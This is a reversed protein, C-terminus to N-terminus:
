PPGPPPGSPPPPPPYVIVPPAYHHRYRYYTVPPPPIQNGRTSMCQEYAIDYRHQAQREQPGANSAGVASGLLLGWVAGGVIGGPRGGSLAAGAAAGVGAGIGAGKAVSEGPEPTGQLSREAYDRCTRDDAQFQELSKGPGPMVAVDPGKPMTSCGAVILATLPLWLINQKM